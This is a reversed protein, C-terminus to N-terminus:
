SGVPPQAMPAKESGNDYVMRYMRLMAIYKIADSIM